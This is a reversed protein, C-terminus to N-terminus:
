EHALVNVFRLGQAAGQGNVDAILSGLERLLKQSVAVGNM